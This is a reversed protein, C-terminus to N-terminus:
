NGKLLGYIDEKESVVKVNNITLLAATVGMGNIKTGSFDGSYIKKSGCSPSNSKLLALTCNSEKCIKLTEYAGKIFEKTVDHEKINKVKAQGKLVSFGDGGVIEAPERPTSLGGLVEPCVSIIRMKNSLSLIREDKNHGGNYKCRNGLFCSSVLLNKM